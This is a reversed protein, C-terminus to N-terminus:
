LMRRIEKEGVYEGLGTGQELREWWTFLMSDCILRFWPTFVLGQDALMGRLEDPSVWRTDRVENPNPELTVDRETFLIYDIENEGWKGDSAAMYYIRTLFAFGEPPVQAPPIGLEQYLKRQAARKAGAAAAALTAGTEGPVALPHSCCTNTWMDPFTIKASARQQLLLKHTSPHFVFASFARHVLGRSINTM